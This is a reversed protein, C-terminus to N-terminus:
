RQQVWVRRSEYHGPAIVRTQWCGSYYGPVWVRETVTPVWVTEEVWYGCPPPSSYVISAAGLAIGTGILAGVYWDNHHGHGYYHGHGQSYGYGSHSYGHGGYGHGYGRGGGHRGAFASSAASLVLLMCFVVAISVTKIM